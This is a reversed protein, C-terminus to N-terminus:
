VCSQECSSASMFGTEDEGGSSCDSYNNSSATEEVPLNKLGQEHPSDLHLSIKTSSAAKDHEKSDVEQREGKAHLEELTVAGAKEDVESTDDAPPLRDVLKLVSEVESDLQHNGHTNSEATTSAPKNSRCTDGFAACIDAADDQDDVQVSSNIEDQFSEEAEMAPEAIVMMNDGSEDRVPVEMQLFESTTAREAEDQDSTEKSDGQSRFADVEAECYADQEPSNAAMINHGVMSAVEVEPPDVNDKPSTPADEKGKNPSVPTDVGPVCKNGENRASDDVVISRDANRTYHEDKKRRQMVSVFDEDDSESDHALCCSIIPHTLQIPFVVPGDNDDPGAAKELERFKVVFVEARSTEKVNDDTANDVAAGVDRATVDEDVSPLRDRVTSNATSKLSDPEDMKEEDKAVDDTLDIVNNHTRNQSSPSAYSQSQAIGRHDGEKDNASVTTAESSLRVNMEVRDLKVGQEDDEARGDGEVTTFDVDMCDGKEVKYDYENFESNKGTVSDVVRITAKQVNDEQASANASHNGRQPQFDDEDADVEYTPNRVPRKGRPRKEKPWSVVPILNDEESSFPSPPLTHDNDVLKPVVSRTKRTSSASSRADGDTSRHRLLKSRLERPVPKSIKASETVPTLNRPTRGGKSKGNRTSATMNGNASSTRGKPRREDKVDEDLVIVRDKKIAIPIKSKSDNSKKNNTTGGCSVVVVDEDNPRDIITNSPGAKASVRSTRRTSMNSHRVPQLGGDSEDSLQLQVQKQKKLGRKVPHTARARKRPSSSCSSRIPALDAEDSDAGHAVVANRRRAPM